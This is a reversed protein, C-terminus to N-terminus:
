TDNENQHMEKSQELLQKFLELDKTPFPHIYKPCDIRFFCTEDSCRKIKMCKISFFLRIFNWIIIFIFFSFFLIGTIWEFIM